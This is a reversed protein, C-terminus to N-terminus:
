DSFIVPIAEFSKIREKKIEFNISSTKRIEQHLFWTWQTSFILKFSSSLKMSKWFLCFFLGKSTSHLSWCQYNQNFVICYHSFRLCRSLFIKIKNKWQFFVASVNLPGSSLCLSCLTQLTTGTRWWIWKRSQKKTKVCHAVVKVRKQFNSKPRLALTKVCVFRIRKKM